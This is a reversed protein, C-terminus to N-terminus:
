SGNFQYYVMDLQEIGKEDLVVSLNLELLWFVQNCAPLIVCLHELCLQHGISQVYLYRSEEM